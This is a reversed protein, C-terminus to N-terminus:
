KKGRSMCTPETVFCRCFDSFLELCGILVISISMGRSLRCGQRATIHVATHLNEFGYSFSLIDWVM